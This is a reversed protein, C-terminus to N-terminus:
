RQNLCTATSVEKRRTKAKAFVVLKKITQATDEIVTIIDAGTRKSLTLLASVEDRLDDIAPIPRKPLLSMRQLVPLLLDKNMVCVNNDEQKQPTDPALPNGGELLRTKIEPIQDWERGVGSIACGENAVPHDVPATAARQELVNKKTKAMSQALFPRLTPRADFLLFFLRGDEAGPFKRSQLAHSIDNKM